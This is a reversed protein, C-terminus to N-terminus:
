PITHGDLAAVTGGRDGPEWKQRTGQRRADYEHTYPFGEPYFFPRSYPSMARFREIDFTRHHPCKARFQQRHEEESFWYPDPRDGLSYILNPNEAQLRNMEDIYTMYSKFPNIYHAPQYRTVRIASSWPEVGGPRSPMGMFDTDRNLFNEFADESFECCNEDWIKKLALFGIKSDSDNRHKERFSDYLCPMQTRRRSQSTQRKCHRVLFSM